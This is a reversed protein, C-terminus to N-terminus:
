VDVPISIHLATLQQDSCMLCHMSRKGPVQKSHVKRLKQSVSGNDENSARSRNFIGARRHMPGFLGTQVATANKPALEIASPLAECLTGPQLNERDTTVPTCEAHSTASFLIRVQVDPRYKKRKSTTLAQKSCSRLQERTWL